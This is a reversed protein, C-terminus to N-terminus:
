INVRANNLSIKFAEKIARFVLDDGKVGKSPPFPGPRM